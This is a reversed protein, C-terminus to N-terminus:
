SGLDKCPYAGSCAGCTYRVLEEVSKILVCAGKVEIGTEQKLRSLARSFTEPKMGLRAAILTKDYPLNLTVDSEDRSKCLRLLFCGIRQPASQVTLHEIEEIARRRQGSMVRLMALAMSHNTTVKERLLSAPLVILHTDEVAQASASHMGDEFVSLEGFVSGTTLVDVVAEEGDLTERFLKVWGSRVIYFYEAPENHLYLVKGKEAFRTKAADMFDALEGADVSHFLEAQKLLRLVEGQRVEQASAASDVLQGSLTM